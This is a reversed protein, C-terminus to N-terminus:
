TTRTMELNQQANEKGNKRVAMTGAKRGANHGGRVFPTPEWAPLVSTSTSSVKIVNEGAM